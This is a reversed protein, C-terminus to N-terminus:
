NCGKPSAPPRGRADRSPLNAQGAPLLARETSALSRLPFRTRRWTQQARPSRMASLTADQSGGKADSHRAAQRSCHNGQAQSFSVLLFEVPAWPCHSCSLNKKPPPPPPALSSSASPDLPSRLLPSVTSNSAAGFVTRTSTPIAKARELPLSMCGSSLWTVAASLSLIAVPHRDLQVAQHCKVERRKVLSPQM